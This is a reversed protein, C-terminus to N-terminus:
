KIETVRMAGNTGDWIADIQGRYNPYEIEYFSGAAMKITFSTTSATTGFKVYCNNSSDNFLFFGKRQPDEELLTVNSASASVSTVASQMSHPYLAM